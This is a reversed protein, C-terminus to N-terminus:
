VPEKDDLGKRSRQVYLPGEAIDLKHQELGYRILQRITSATSPMRMDYRFNEIEDMLAQPMAINVMVKDEIPKVM